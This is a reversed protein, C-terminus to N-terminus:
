RLLIIADCNTFKLTTDIRFNSQTLHREAQFVDLPYTKGVVLGLRAAEADLVVKDEIAGHIGGLDMVLQGNIFTWVDDDGRFTFIEGGRYEFETHLEFTFHFNHDNGQNGFGQGDIPFFESSSFTMVGNAGQTLPLTYLISKNVGDTDRYWQDFAAQGHTTVSNPGAAYVPKRDAGLQPAVLGVEHIGDFPDPVNEFDVHGDGRAYARFDRVVGTLNPVCGGDVQTFTSGGGTLSIGGSSAGGDGNGGGAAGSGGLGVTGPTSSSSCALGCSTVALIALGRFCSLFPRPM